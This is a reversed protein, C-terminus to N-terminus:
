IGDEHRHGFMKQGGNPNAFGKSNGTSATLQRWWQGLSHQGDCKNLGKPFSESLEVAGANKELPLGIRIHPEKRAGRLMM